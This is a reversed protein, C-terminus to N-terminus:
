FAVERGFHSHRWSYCLAGHNAWEREWRWWYSKPSRLIRGCWVIQRRSPSWVCLSGSLRWRSSVMSHKWCRVVGMVLRQFDCAWAFIYADVNVHSPALVDIELLCLCCVLQNESSVNELGCGKNHFCCGALITWLMTAVVRGRALNHSLCALLDWILIGPIAFARWVVWETM